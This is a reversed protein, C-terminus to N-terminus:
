LRPSRVARTGQGPKPESADASEDTTEARRITTDPPAHIRLRVWSRHTAAVEITVEGIVIAQGPKRNICLAM